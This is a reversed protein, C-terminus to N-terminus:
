LALAVLGIGALSAMINAGNSLAGNNGTSPATSQAPASASGGSAAPGSPSGTQTPSASDTLTVGQDACLQQALAEAQTLDNGSCTSKVCDSTSQVFEQNRCLCGNDTPDCGDPIKAQTICTAACSPIGAQRAFLTSASASAAALIAVTFSKM